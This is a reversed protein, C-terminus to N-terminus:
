HLKDLLNQVGAVENDSDCMKTYKLVLGLWLKAGDKENAHLCAQYADYCVRVMAAPSNLMELQLLKLREEAANIARQYRGQRILDFTAADLQKLRSRNLDSRTLKEGELSCAECNCVFNFRQLLVSRREDRTMYPPDIYCTLLEEGESIESATYINLRNLAPIYRHSVNPLCSSNFRACIPFLGGFDASNGADMHGPCPYANTRFIGLPTKAKGNPAHSDVLSFMQRRSAEDLKNVNEQLTLMSAVILPAESLICTGKPIARIACAGIGLAQGSPFEVRSFKFFENHDVTTNSAGQCTPNRMTLPDKM